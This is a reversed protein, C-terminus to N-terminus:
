YLWEKLAFINQTDWRRLWSMKTTLLFHPHALIKVCGWRHAQYSEFRCSRLWWIRLRARRGIEGCACNTKRSCLYLIFHNVAFLFDHVSGIIFSSNFLSNCPNQPNTTLESTMFYNFSSNFPNQEIPFLSLEHFENNKCPCPCPILPKEDGPTSHM